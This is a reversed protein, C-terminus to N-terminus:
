HLHSFELFGLLHEQTNRGQNRVTFNRKDTHSIKGKALTLFVTGQSKMVICEAARGVAREGESM